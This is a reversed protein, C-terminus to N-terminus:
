TRWVWMDGVGVHKRCGCKLKLVKFFARVHKADFKHTGYDNGQNNEWLKKCTSAQCVVSFGM